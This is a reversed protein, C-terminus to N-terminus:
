DSVDLVYEDTGEVIDFTAVNETLSYTHIYMTVNEANPVNLYYYTAFPTDEEVGFEMLFPYIQFYYEESYTNALYISNADQFFNEQRNENVLNINVKVKVIREILGTGGSGGSGGGNLTNEAIEKLYHNNTNHRTHEDSGTNESISRLYQNDTKM